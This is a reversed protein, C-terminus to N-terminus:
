RIKYDEGMIRKHRQMTKRTIYTEHHSMKYHMDTKLNWWIYTCKEGMKGLIAHVNSYCSCIKSGKSKRKLVRSMKFYFIGGYIIQKYVPQSYWDLYFSFEKKNPSAQQCIFIFLQGFCLKIGKPNQKLYVFCFHGLKVLERM